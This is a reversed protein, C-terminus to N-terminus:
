HSPPTREATFGTSLSGKPACSIGGPGHDLQRGTLIQVLRTHQIQKEEDREDHRLDSCYGVELIHIRINRSKNVIHSRIEGDSKGRVETSGLGEIIMLDPRMTKIESLYPHGAPLLWEPIRTSDVGQPM